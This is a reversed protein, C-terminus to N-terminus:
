RTAGGAAPDRGGVRIARAPVGVVTVGDPVDDIVVAGAGVTVGDGIRVGQLVCAGLGIHTEVGVHVGGALRAGTAIHSHDGIDCDHEVIAGTNVIVNHGVRADPNIIVGAVVVVGEGLSAGSAVVAHPHVITLGRFGAERILQFLRGRMPTSRTSAVGVFAYEVGQARLRTLEGDDGLIPIGAVFTGLRDRRADTLGVVEYAPFHRLVDLIVRVHGGAGVGVVRQNHMM